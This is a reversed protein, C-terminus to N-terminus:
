GESPQLMAKVEAVAQVVDGLCCTGRPNRLDCACRGGAILARLRQPAESRGTREIEAWVDAENEGFCYCIMRRGFPEKQWVPVRIDSAGFVQGAADFYVTPCAAGGCFRHPTASVRRMATETLLAKVTALEVASGQHRCTPCATGVGAAAGPVERCDTM